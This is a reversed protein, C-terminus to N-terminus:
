PTPVGPWSLAHPTRGKYSFSLEVNKIPLHDLNDRPGGGGGGSRLQLFQLARKGLGTHKNRNEVVEKRGEQKAKASPVALCSFCVDLSRVIRVM